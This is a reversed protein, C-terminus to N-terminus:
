VVTQKLYLASLMYIDSSRKAATVACSDCVCNANEINM